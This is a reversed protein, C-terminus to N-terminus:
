RKRSIPVVVERDHHGLEIGKKEVGLMAELLALEKADAPLGGLSKAFLETPAMSLQVLEWREGVPPAAAGRPVQKANSRANAGHRQAPAAAAREAKFFLEQKNTLSTFALVRTSDAHGYLPAGASRVIRGVTTLSGGTESEAAIEIARHALAAHTTTEPLTLMTETRRLMRETIMRRHLIGFVFAHASITIVGVLILRPTTESLVVASPEPLLARLWRPLVSPERSPAWPSLPANRPLSYLTLSAANAGANAAVPPTELEVELHRLLWRCTEAKAVEPPTEGRAEAAARAVLWEAEAEVRAVGRVGGESVVPFAICATGNVPDTYGSIVGNTSTVASGLLERVSEAARIQQDAAELVASNRLHMQRVALAGSVIGVAGAVGFGALGSLSRRMLWAQLVM